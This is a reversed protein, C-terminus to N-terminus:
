TSSPETENNIRTYPFMNNIEEIDKYSLGGNAECRRDHEERRKEWCPDEAPEEGLCYFRVIEDYSLNSEFPGARNCALFEEVNKSLRCSTGKANVRAMREDFEKMGENGYEDKYFEKFETLGVGNTVPADVVSSWLLYYEKNARPDVLKVIYRPM